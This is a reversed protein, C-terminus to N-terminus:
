RVVNDVNYASNTANGEQDDRIVMIETVEARSTLLDFTWSCTPEQLGPSPTLVVVVVYLSTM